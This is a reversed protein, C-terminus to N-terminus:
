IKEQRGQSLEHVKRVSKKRMFQEVDEPLFKILKGARYSPLREDQAWQRLTRESVGIRKAVTHVSLYRPTSSSDSSRYLDSM